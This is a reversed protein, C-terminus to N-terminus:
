VVELEMMELFAQARTKIPGAALTTDLELVTTPLDLQGFLKKLSPIDLEQPHCFKQYVLIAGQVNYDRALNLIHRYRPRQTIDTSTHVIDKVPCSPKDVYRSAIALLPDSDPPVLNWFYRSGMCLDDVVINAGQEEILRLLESDHNEGGVMMLRPGPAPPDPRQPLYGILEELWRNHEEKDCFMSSLVVDLTEAGSILPPDSKRFEYLQRLLRRHTNYVEIARELDGSSISKGIWKELTDKFEALEDALIPKLAQAEAIGPIPIYYSYSTPVHLVWSEFTQNVQVCTHGAAIGDLYHYRGSLGEGLCDRSFPCYFSAMYVSSFEQPELSSVIRVPLIGGGYAVEEPMYCCLYGLVKGGTRAKWEQAYQHRNQVLDRFRDLM